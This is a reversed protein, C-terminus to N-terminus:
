IEEKWTRRNFNHRCKEYGTRSVYGASKARQLKQNCLWRKRKTKMHQKSQTSM